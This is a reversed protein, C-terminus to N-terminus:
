FGGAFTLIGGIEWGGVIKDLVANMGGGFRQGRGFPLSYVWGAVMRHKVDEASLSRENEFTTNNQYSTSPGLFGNEFPPSEITYLGIASQWRVEQVLRAPPLIRCAPSRLKAFLRLRSNGSNRCEEGTPM